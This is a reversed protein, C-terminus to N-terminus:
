SAVSVQAHRIVTGGLSYGPVLVQVIQGKIHDPSSVQMLAEHYDPNFNGSCDIQQVGLDSLMKQLSKHTLQLGEFWQRDAETTSASLVSMSQIARDFNDIIPLIAKLVLIQGHQISSLRSKEINRKFNAFDASLRLFQEKFSEEQKEDSKKQSDDKLMEEELMDQTIEDHLSKYNMIIKEMMM